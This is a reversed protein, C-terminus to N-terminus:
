SCSSVLSSTEREAASCIISFLLRRRTDWGTNPGRVMYFGVIFLGFLHYSKTMCGNPSKGHSDNRKLSVLVIYIIPLPWASLVRAYLASPLLIDWPSCWWVWCFQRWDWVSIWLGSIHPHLWGREPHRRRM